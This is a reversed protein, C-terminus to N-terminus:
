IKVEIDYYIFIAMIRGYILLNHQHFLSSIGATLRVFYAIMSKNEPFFLEQDRFIQM